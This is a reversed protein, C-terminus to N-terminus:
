FQICPEDYEFKIETDGIILINGYELSRTIKRLHCYANMFTLFYIWSNLGVRLSHSDTSNELQIRSKEEMSKTREREAVFFMLMSGYVAM